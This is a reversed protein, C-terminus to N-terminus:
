ELPMNCDGARPLAQPNSLAATCTAFPSRMYKSLASGCSSSYGCSRSCLALTSFQVAPGQYHQTGQVHLDKSHASRITVAVRPQQTDIVFTICRALLSTHLM